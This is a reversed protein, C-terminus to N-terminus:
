ACDLSSWIDVMLAEDFLDMPFSPPLHMYESAVGELPAPEGGALAPAAPLLHGEWSQKLYQMMRAGRTFVDDDPHDNILRTQQSAEKMMGIVGDLVLLIDFSNRVLSKDWAPDEFTTLRFLNVLLRSMQSFVTFPFAAWDDPPMSLLLDFWAKVSQLCACLSHLQNFGGANDSIMPGKSLMALEHVFSEASYCHLLVM